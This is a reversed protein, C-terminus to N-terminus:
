PSAKGCNVEPLDGALLHSYFLLPLYLSHQLDPNRATHHIRLYKKRIRHSVRQAIKFVHANMEAKGISFYFIVIFFNV